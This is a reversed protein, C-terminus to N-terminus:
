LGDGGPQSDTLFVFACEAVYAFLCMLWDVEGNWNRTDWLVFLM